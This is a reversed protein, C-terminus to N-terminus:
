IMKNFLEICLDIEAPNSNLFEITGVRDIPASINHSELQRKTERATGNGGDYVKPYNNLVELIAEKAFPYHTCGLVLADPPSDLYDKLLDRLYIKFEDDDTKGSEVFEVIGPAELTSIKADDKFQKMLNNFKNQNLTVHTALVLISKGPNALTAPKLAPEIGIVPIDPYKDRIRTIAAVTATNCAIVLCKCGKKILMDATNITLEAVQELPRVGYPANASDGFYIFNENPMLKVLESLVSIGGVGSDFVGIPSLNNKMIHVENFDVIIISYKILFTFLVM